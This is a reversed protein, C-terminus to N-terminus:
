NGIRREPKVFYKDDIFSFIHLIILGINKFMIFVRLHIHPSSMVGFQLCRSLAALAAFAPTRRFVTAFRHAGL